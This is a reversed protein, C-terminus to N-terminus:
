APPKSRRLLRNITATATEGSQEWQQLKTNAEDDLIIHVARGGEGIKRARRRAQREADTLPRKPKTM